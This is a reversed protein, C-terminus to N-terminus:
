GIYGPLYLGTLSMKYLVSDKGPYSSKQLAGQHRKKEIEDAAVVGELSDRLEPGPRQRM